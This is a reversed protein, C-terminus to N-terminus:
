MVKTTGRYAHEVMGRRAVVAGEASQDGVAPHQGGFRLRGALEATRRARSLPSALVRGLDFDAMRAALRRADREGDEPPVVERRLVVDHQAAALM